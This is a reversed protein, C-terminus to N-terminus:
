LSIDRKVVIKIPKLIEEALSTLGQQWVNIKITMADPDYETWEGDKQELVLTKMPYIKLVELTEHERGTFTDLM